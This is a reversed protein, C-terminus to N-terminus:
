TMSRRRARRAAPGRWTMSRGRPGRTALVRGTMTWRRRLGRTMSAPRTMTSSRRRAQTTRGHRTTTTMPRGHTTTSRPRPVPTTGARPTTTSRRRPGDDRFRPEYGASGRDAGREDDSRHARRTEGGRSDRSRAVDDDLGAEAQTDHFRTADDDLEAEEASDHARTADDDSAQAADHRRTADHAAQTDHFRTADDDSAAESRTDHRRTADDQPESAAQGGEAHPRTSGDREAEARADLPRRADDDDLAPEADARDPRTSDDREAEARTDHPHTADDEPEAEARDLRASDDREAEAGTDHPRTADDEPEEWGTDTEHDQSTDGDWAESRPPPAPTVAEAPGTWGEARPRPRAPASDDAGGWGESRSSSVVEEGRREARSSAAAEGGQGEARSSAAAEEGESEPRSAEAEEGRMGPVPSAVQRDKGEGGQSAIAGGAESSASGDAESTPQPASGDPVWAEPKPPSGPTAASERTRGGAESRSSSTGPMWAETRPPVVPDGPRQHPPQGPGAPDWAETRPPVGPRPPGAAGSWPQQGPGAPDVPAWAETRPPTGQPGSVAGRPSEAPDGPTWAQTRPPAGQPGSVAGQPPEAPAGPIWAETRPPMAAPPAVGSAGDWAETRPPPAPSVPDGPSWAETRPPVGPVQPRPGSLDSAGDWAETSPPVGPRQPTAFDSAGDWAETSPPPGAPAAWAPAQGPPGTPPQHAMPAVSPAAARPDPPYHHAPPAIGPTPTVPEKPSASTARRPGLIEALIAVSAPFGRPRAPIGGGLRCWSLDAAYMTALLTDRVSPEAPELRERLHRPLRNDEPWFRRLPHDPQALISQMAAGVEPDLWAIVQTSVEQRVVALDASLLSAAILRPEVYGPKAPNGAVPAVAMALDYYANRFHEGASAEGRLAPALGPPCRTLWQQVLAGDGYPLAGYDITPNNLTAGLMAILADARIQFRPDDRLASAMAWITRLIVVAADVRGARLREAYLGIISELPPPTLWRPGDIEPLPRARHPSWLGLLQGDLRSDFVPAAASWLMVGWAVVVTSPTSSSFLNWWHPYDPLPLAAASEITARVRSTVEPRISTDVFAAAPPPSYALDPGTPVVHPPIPPVPMGPRLPRASMRTISLQPPPCLHWQGSRPTWRYWRGWAGFVWWSGDPLALMRGAVLNQRHQPPTNPWWGASVMAHTDREAM